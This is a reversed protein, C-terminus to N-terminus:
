KQFPLKAAVGTKSIAYVEISADKGNLGTFLSKKLVVSFGSRMLGGDNLAKAVDLRENLASGQHVLKQNAFILIKKVPRSHAIDAAWGQFQVREGMLHVKELMGKIKDPAAHIATQGKALLLCDSCIYYAQNLSPKKAQQDLTKQM